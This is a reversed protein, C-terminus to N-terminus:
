VEIIYAADEIEKLPDFGSNWESSYGLCGCLFVTGEKELKKRYHVHGSVSYRVSPSNAAIEGYEPSGLYANLYKWMPPPNQVTFEKVPLVHTVLIVNRDESLGNLRTKLKELFFRHMELTKRNWVAFISDQWVREGYKMKEFEEFSFSPDGFRYDYWGLDGIVTWRSNIEYPKGALNHEHEMLRNYIDWSSEGPHHKTWIDHNGPVFLCVAGTQKEIRDVTGLTLEYDEAIDGAIILIDISNKKIFSCLAPTVADEGARMNIDIHIDSLIGVKAM